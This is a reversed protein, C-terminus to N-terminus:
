QANLMKIYQNGQELVQNTAEDLEGNERLLSTDLISKILLALQVCQYINEQEKQSYNNWDQGKTAVTEKMKAVHPILYRDLKQLLQTIQNARTYISKLAIAINRAQAKFAKAKDQNSYADNLAKKSQSSLIAGGVALAPGVVLGGLVAMGGAMGLGGASLAGGGLWALTAKTAAAGSLTGLATKTTATVILGGLGTKVVSYTGFAM